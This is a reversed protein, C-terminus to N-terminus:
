HGERSTVLGTIGLCHGMGVRSFGLETKREMASPALLQGSEARVRAV